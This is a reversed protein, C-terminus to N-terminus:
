SSDGHGTPHLLLEQSHLRELLRIQARVCDIRWARAPDSEADATRDALLTEVAEGRLGTILALYPRLWHPCAWAEAGGGTREVLHPPCVTRRPEEAWWARDREIWAPEKNGGIAEAPPRQQLRARLLLLRAYERSTFPWPRDATPRPDPFVSPEAHGAQSSRTSWPGAHWPCPTASGLQHSVFACAACTSPTNM